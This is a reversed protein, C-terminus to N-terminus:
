SPDGNAQPPQHGGGDTRMATPGGEGQGHRRAGIGTPVRRNASGQVPGPARPELRSWRVTRCDGISAKAGTTPRHHALIYRWGELLSGAPAPGTRAPHAEKGGIARIGVASLLFSVANAMVTMVPGFVGIAVGGLPPGLITTTWATAEFRANAVLLDDRPVLSKLFAGSAATFGIDAALVVVSM